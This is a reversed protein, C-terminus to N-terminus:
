IHITQLFSIGGYAFGLGVVAGLLALLMSETLLQRILRARSVGLALRIAIERSRGRARGLLLNAVNACAIILVVGVLAMLLTILYADPPDQVVRAQLETRVRVIRQRDEVSHLQDMGKWITALEAEAQERTVGDKLRGKVNFQHNKRDEIPNEASASLRQWMVAPLYLHPRVYQDVGTFSKPTVGVVTFDIGNIRITRGLVSPDAAFESRWFDYALVAVPNRGSAADEEPLFGRGLAPEVGVVQFLNGSVLFAGRLRASDKASKAVSVPSLNMAVLGDFSQSKDRLDRYDPYSVGGIGGSATAPDTSVTVVSNPRYIALPRLLLADAMSFIASNAGIGLALSLTAVATFGPNRMLLRLAYRIEESIAHFLAM